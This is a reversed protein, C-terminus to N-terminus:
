LVFLHGNCGVWNLWLTHNESLHIKSSVSPHSRHYLAEGFPNDEDEELKKDLGLLDASAKCTLTQMDLVLHQLYPWEGKVLISVKHSDLWTGQLDLQLLQVWPGRVLCRVTEIDLDQDTIDLKTLFPWSAQALSQLADADQLSNLLHLHRMSSFSSPELHGIAAADIKNGWLLLETLHPWPANSFRSINSPRASVRWSDIFGAKPFAGSHGAAGRLYDLAYLESLSNETSGM